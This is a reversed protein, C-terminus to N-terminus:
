RADLDIVKSALKAAIDTSHTSFLVSRSGDIFARLMRIMATTTAPSANAFLEDLLLVDPGRLLSCILALSSREGSSLKFVPKPMLGSCSDRGLLAAWKEAYHDAGTLTTSAGATSFLALNQEATYWPFLFTKLDTPVLAIRMPRLREVGGQSAPQLGAIIRLLTSKGSGNQGVIAVASGPAVRIPVKVQLSRGDDFLVELEGIRLM